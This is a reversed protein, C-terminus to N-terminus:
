EDDVDSGACDSEDDSGGSCSLDSDSDGDSSDADSDAGAYIARAAIARQPRPPPQRSPARSRRPPTAVCRPFPSRRRCRHLPPLAAARSRRMPPAAVAQAIAAGDAPRVHKRLACARARPPLMAARPIAAAAALLRATRARRPSYPHVGRPLNAPSLGRVRPHKEAPDIFVPGRHV